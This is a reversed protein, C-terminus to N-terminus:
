AMKGRYNVFFANETNGIMISALKNVINCLSFKSPIVTTQLVSWSSNIQVAPDTHSQVCVSSLPRVLLLLFLDWAECLSSKSISSRSSSALSPPMCVRPDLPPTILLVVLRLLVGDLDVPGVLDTTLTCLSVKRKHNM